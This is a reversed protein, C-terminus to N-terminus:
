GRAPARSYEFRPESACVCPWLIDCGQIEKRSAVARCFDRLRTPSGGLGTRSHQRPCPRASTGRARGLMNVTHFSVAAPLDAGERPRLHTRVAARGGVGSARERARGQETGGSRSLRRPSRPRAGPRSGVSGLIARLPNGSKCAVAGEPDNSAPTRSWRSPIWLAHRSGYLLARDRGGSCNSHVHRMRRM